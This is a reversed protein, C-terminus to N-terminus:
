SWAKQIAALLAQRELVPMNALKNEWRSIKRKIRQRDTRNDELHSYDHLAVPEPYNMWLYETAKSGGRTIAQWCIKRWHGIASQYLDSDYGSILINVGQMHLSSIDLLTQLLDIHDNRTMEHLYIASSRRRTEILYPPDCYIVENGTWAARLHYRRLFQIGCGVKVVAGPLSSECNFADVAGSDKDIGINVRAPRKMRMVAGSGLFPEIYVDHPPIQCIIKQYAGGGNKGGPYKM